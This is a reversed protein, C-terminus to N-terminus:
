NTGQLKNRMIADLEDLRREPSAGPKRLYGNVLPEDYIGPADAALYMLRVIHPTSTFGVRAAYSHADRMGALVADRGPHDRLDPRELLFEDCVAANFQNTEAQLLARWQVENLQLM